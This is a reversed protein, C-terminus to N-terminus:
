GSANKMKEDYVAFTLRSGFATYMFREAGDNAIARDCGADQMSMSLNCMWSYAYCDDEKIATEVVDMADKVNNLKLLSWTFVSVTM